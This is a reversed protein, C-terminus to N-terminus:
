HCLVNLRSPNQFAGITNAFGVTVPVYTNTYTRSNGSNDCGLSVVVNADDDNGVKSASVLATYDTNSFTGTTFNIRYVGTSVYSVSSVNYSNIRTQTVANYQVFAYAKTRDVTGQLSSISGTLNSYLANNYRLEKSTPDYVMITTGVTDSRIPDVYFGSNSPNLVGASANICISNAVSSGYGALHGVM